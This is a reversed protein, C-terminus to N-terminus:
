LVGASGESRCGQKRESRASNNVVRSVTAISVGARKAVDHISANMFQQYELRIKYVNEIETNLNGGFYLNKM